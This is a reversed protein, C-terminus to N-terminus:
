PSGFAAEPDELLRLVEDLGGRATLGDEIREDFTWRIPLVKAAIIEDHEVWARAEYAGVGMFLPCNGWEYLHHLPAPM